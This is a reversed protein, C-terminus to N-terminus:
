RTGRRLEALFARSEPTRELKHTMIRDLLVAVEREAPAPEPWTELRRWSGESLALLLHHAEKSVTVLSQSQARNSCTPCLFGPAALVLKQGAKSGCEMCHEVSVAFGLRSLLRLTFFALLLEHRESHCLIHLCATLLSLIDDHSQGDVLSLDVLEMMYLGFVIKDLNERLPRFGEVMEVQSLTYLSKGQYLTFRLHSFPQTVSAFRSQVKRAGKAVARVKGHGAVLILLLRDWEGLNYSRLVLGEGKLQPM